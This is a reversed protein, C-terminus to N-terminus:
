EGIYNTNAIEFTQFTTELAEEVAEIYPTTSTKSVLWDEEGSIIVMKYDIIFKVKQHLSSPVAGASHIWPCGLLCSYTPTIDMVQFLINSTCPGIQIPLEIEGIVGRITGDFAKVALTNPKIYSEDFPLKVLTSKPMVNLSSGNDILVRAMVYDRCKVSIHLTKVHGRGELPIEDYSFQIYNDAVIHNVIGDFKDM